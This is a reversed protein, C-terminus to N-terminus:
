KLENMKTPTKPLIYVKGLLFLKFTAKSSVSVCECFHENIHVKGTLYVLLYVTKQQSLNPQFLVTKQKGKYIDYFAHVIEWQKPIM